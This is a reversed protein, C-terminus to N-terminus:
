SLRPIAVGFLPDQDLGEVLAGIAECRAYTGAALVLLHANSNTAIDFAWQCAQTTSVGSVVTWGLPMDVDSASNLRVIVRSVIGGLHDARAHAAIGHAVLEPALHSLDVFATIATM